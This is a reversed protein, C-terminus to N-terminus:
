LKRFVEEPDFGLEELEELAEEEIERKERQRESSRSRNHPSGSPLEWAEQQVPNHTKMENRYTKAM